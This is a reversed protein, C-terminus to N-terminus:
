HNQYNMINMIRGYHLARRCAPRQLLLQRIELIVLAAAPTGSARVDSARAARQRLKHASAVAVGFCCTLSCCRAALLLPRRSATPRLATPLM